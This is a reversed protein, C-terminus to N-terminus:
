FHDLDLEPELLYYRNEDTEKKLHHIGQHKMNSVDENLLHALRGATGIYALGLFLNKHSRLFSSPEGEREILRRTRLIAYIYTSPIRVCTITCYNRSLACTCSKCCSSFVLSIRIIVEFYTKIDYLM